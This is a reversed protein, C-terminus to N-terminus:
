LKYFEEKTYEKYHEIGTIIYSIGITNIDGKGKFFLKNILIQQGDLEKLSDCKERASAFEKVFLDAMRKEEKSRELNDNTIGDRFSLEVCIFDLSTM